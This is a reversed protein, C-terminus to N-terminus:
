MDRHFPNGANNQRIIKFKSPGSVGGCFKVADAALGLLTKRDQSGGGRSCWLPIIRCKQILMVSIFVPFLNSLVKNEVEM